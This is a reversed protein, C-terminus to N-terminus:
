RRGASASALKVEFSLPQGDREIEVTVTRGVRQRGVYFALGEISRIERGDIEVIIDGARIGAEAAPLGPEVADVRCQGDDLGECTVGLIARRGQRYDYWREGELLRDWDSRVADVPAHYNQDLSEYIRSHLGIVRGEYDVLPGGSDGKNITCNTRLFRSRTPLVRGFRLVAPRERSFGGTHGVAFCVENSELESSSGMEIHPWGGEREPLKLLGYDGTHNCGLARATVRTGDRLTVRATRSDRGFVHGVTLVHGEPSVIVGSGENPSLSVGVTADLVRESVAEVHDEFAALDSLVTASPEPAVSAATNRPAGVSTELVIALLTALGLPLFSLTRLIM